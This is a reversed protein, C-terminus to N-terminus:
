LDRPESSFKDRIRSKAAYGPHMKYVFDILQRETPDHQFKELLARIARSEDKLNQLMRRFDATGRVTLRYGIGPDKGRENIAFTEIIKAKVLDKVCTELHKSFPGFHHPKWVYVLDDTKGGNRSHSFQHDALFVYKQLRLKYKVEGMTGLVLTLFMTPTMQRKERRRMEAGLADRVDPPLSDPQIAGASLGVIIQDVNLRENSVGPAFVNEFTESKVAHRRQQPTIFPIACEAGRGCLDPCAGPCSLAGRVNWM